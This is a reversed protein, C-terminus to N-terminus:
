EIDDNVIFEILKGYTEKRNFEYSISDYSEDNFNNKKGIDNSRANLCQAFLFYIKKEEESLSSFYSEKKWYIRSNSVSLACLFIEKESVM